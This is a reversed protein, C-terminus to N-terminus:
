RVSIYMVTDVIKLIEYISSSVLINFEVPKEPFSELISGKCAYEM